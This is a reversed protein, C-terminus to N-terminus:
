FKFIRPTGSKPSRERDQRVRLHESGLPTTPRDQVARHQLRPGGPIHAVLNSLALHTASPQGLILVESVQAQFGQHNPSDRHFMVCVIPRVRAQERM